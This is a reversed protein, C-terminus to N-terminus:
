SLVRAAAEARETVKGSDQNDTKTNNTDQDSTKQAVASIGFVLIFTLLLHLIRM